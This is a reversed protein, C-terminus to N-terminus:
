WHLGARACGNALLKKASMRDQLCVKASLSKALKLYNFYIFRYSWFTIPKTHRWTSRVGDQINVSFLAEM